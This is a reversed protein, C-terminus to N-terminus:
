WDHTPYLYPLFQNQPSPGNRSFNLRKNFWTLGMGVKTARPFLQLALISLPVILLLKQLPLIAITETIATTAPVSVVEATCAGGIFLNLEPQTDCVRSSLMVLGSGVLCLLTLLAWVINWRRTM